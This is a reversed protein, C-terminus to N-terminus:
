TDNTYPINDVTPNQFENKAEFVFNLIRENIQSLSKQMTHTPNNIFNKRYDLVVIVMQFEILFDAFSKFSLIFPSKNSLKLTRIDNDIFSFDNFAYVNAYIKDYGSSYLYLYKQLYPEFSKRVANICLEDWTKTLLPFDRGNKSIYMKRHNEYIQKIDCYLNYFDDYLGLIALNKPTLGIDNVVIGRLFCINVNYM